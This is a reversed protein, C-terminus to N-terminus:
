AHTTTSYTQLRSIYDQVTTQNLKHLIKHFIKGTSIWRALSIFVEPGLNQCLKRSSYAEIQMISVGLMTMTYVFFGLVSQTTWYNYSCSYSFSLLLGRMWEASNRWIEDATPPKKSAGPSRQGYVSNPVVSWCGSRWMPWCWLATALCSIM